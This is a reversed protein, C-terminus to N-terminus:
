LQQAEPKETAVEPVSKPNGAVTEGTGAPHRILLTRVTDSPQAGRGLWHRLRQRDLEFREPQATPNYHGIVELARGDRASRAEMLVIRFFPKKKAGVRRMRITLM